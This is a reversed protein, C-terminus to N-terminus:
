DENSKNSATNMEMWTLPRKEKDSVDEQETTEEPEEVLEGAQVRIMVKMLETQRVQENVLRAFAFEVPVALLFLLSLGFTPIAAIIAIVISIWTFVSIFEASTSTKRAGRSIAKDLTTSSM